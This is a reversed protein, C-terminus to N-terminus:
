RSKFFANVLMTRSPISNAFHKTLALVNISRARGQVDKVEADDATTQNAITSILVDLASFDKADILATVSDLLKDAAGIVNGERHLTMVEAYLVLIPEASITSAPLGCKPENSYIVSCSFSFEKKPARHQRVDTVPSYIAVARDTIM